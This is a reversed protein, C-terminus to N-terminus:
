EPAGQGTDTDPAPEPKGGLLELLRAADVTLGDLAQDRQEIRTELTEIRQEAERILALAQDITEVPAPKPTETAPETAEKAADAHQGIAFSVLLVWLM